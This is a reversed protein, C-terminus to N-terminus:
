EVKMQGKWDLLASIFLFFLRKFIELFFLAKWIFHFTNNVSNSPNDNPSFIIIFFIASVFKLIM